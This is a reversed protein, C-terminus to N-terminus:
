PRHVPGAFIDIGLLIDVHQPEGFAPDLLILGSLHIWSLDFLVPTVPLDCTVKPLVIATLNIKRGNSHASTIQFNAVSQVPSSALSGTIGSVRVNSQSHPLRLGLVLSESVFSSTSGNNLLARAGVTSGDPAFGLVRCTM